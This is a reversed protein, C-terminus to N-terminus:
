SRPSRPSARPSRPSVRSGATENRNNNNNNNHNSISMLSFAPAPLRLLVPQNIDLSAPSPMSTHYGDLNLLSHQQPSCSSVSSCSTDLIDGGARPSPPMMSEALKMMNIGGGEGPLAFGSDIRVRRLCMRVAHLLQRLVIAVGSNTSKLSEATPRQIEEGDFAEMQTIDSLGHQDTWRRCRWYMGTRLVWHPHSTSPPAAFVCLDFHEELIDLLCDMPLAVGCDLSVEENVYQSLLLARVIDPECVFSVFLLIDDRSPAEPAVSVAIEANVGDKKLWWFRNWCKKCAVSELSSGTRPFIVSPAASNTTSTTTIDFLVPEIITENRQTYGHAHNNLHARRLRSEVVSSPSTSSSSAAATAAPVDMASMVSQEEDELFASTTKEKKVVMMGRKKRKKKKSGILSSASPLSSSSTSLYRDAASSGCASSSCTSSAGGYRRSSAVSATGDVEVNDNDKNRRNKGNKVVASSTSTGCGM